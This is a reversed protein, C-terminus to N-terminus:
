KRDEIEYSKSYGPDADIYFNQSVTPGGQTLLGCMTDRGLDDSACNRIMMVNQSTGCLQDLDEVWGFRETESLAEFSFNWKRYKPRADVHTAGFRAKVKISPDVPTDTTGPAYNITAQHRLGDVTLGAELYAAGAAALDYRIYKLSAAGDRLCVLNEYYASVRGAASGSDFVAGDQASADTLSVRVRSIISSTLSVGASSAAAVGFLGFTDATVAAALAVTISMTDAEVRCRRSTHPGLLRSPPTLPLSGPVTITATAAANEFCFAAPFTLAM